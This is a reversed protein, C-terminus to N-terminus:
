ILIGRIKQGARIQGHIEVGKAAAELGDGPPHQM